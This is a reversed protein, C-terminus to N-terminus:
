HEEEFVARRKAREAARADEAHRLYEMTQLWLILADNVAERLQLGNAKAEKKLQKRLDADIPVNLAKENGTLKVM